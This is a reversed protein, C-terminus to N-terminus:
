SLYHTVAQVKVDADPMVQGIAENFQRLADAENFAEFQPEFTLTGNTWRVGFKSKVGLTGISMGSANITIHPGTVFAPAEGEPVSAWKTDPKLDVEATEDLPEVNELHFGGVKNKMARGDNDTRACIYDDDFEDSITVTAPGDWVWEGDSDSEESNDYSILVRDGVKYKPTYEEQALSRLEIVDESTPGATFKGKIHKVYFSGVSDASIFM